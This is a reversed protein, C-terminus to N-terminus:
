PLIRPPADRAPAADPAKVYLPAPPTVGEEPHAAGIRAIARALEAPACEPAPAGTTLVPGADRLTYIQGRPANIRVPLGLFRRAAFGSVGIAPCALGLALGRATAVGIRIGTFNGPGIGVALASLEQWTVGAQALLEELLPVLREAQGRAMDEAHAAIVQDGRVIAAACYAGSTDFGLVLPDVTM